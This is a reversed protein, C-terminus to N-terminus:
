VLDAEGDAEPIEIHDIVEFRWDPRAVTARAHEVLDPVLDVGLYRGQLYASIPRALRGSGCGVDILYGDAPLGYHRVLATEIAGFLEFHGGIATEMAEEHPLEAKLAEVHALYGRKIEKFPPPAPPEPEPPPARRFRERIRQYAKGLGM